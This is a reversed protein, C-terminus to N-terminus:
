QCVGPFCLWAISCVLRRKIAVNPSTTQSKSEDEGSM